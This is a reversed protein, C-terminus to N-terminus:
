SCVSVVDMEGVSRWVQAKRYGLAWSLDERQEQQSDREGFKHPERKTKM